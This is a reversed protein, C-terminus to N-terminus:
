AAALEQDPKDDTEEIFAIDAQQILRYVTGEPTDQHSPYFDFRGDGFAVIDGPKADLPKLNGKKDRKGPGVAVVEGRCHKEHSVVAITKSHEREIPRVLIYDQRPALM